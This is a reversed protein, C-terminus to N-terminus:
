TFILNTKFFHLNQMFSTMEHAPNKRELIKNKTQISLRINRHLHVDTSTAYSVVKRVSAYAPESYTMAKISFCLKYDPLIAPTDDSVHISFVIM